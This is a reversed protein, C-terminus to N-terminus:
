VNEDRVKKWQNFMVEARLGNYTNQDILSKIDILSMGNMYAENIDKYKYTEPWIVINVGMDILKKYEKLIERNRNENDMVFTQDLGGDVAVHLASSGVAICNPLFLSDLPGEVVYVKENKDLRDMGYFPPPKKDLKISIYKPVEPGFSRAHYMFCEKTDETFFPIILRPHEQKPFEKVVRAFKDTHGVTWKHFRPAYYIDGWFEEPIKRDKVYLAAPHDDNLEVISKLESLVSPRYPKTKLQPEKTYAELTTPNHQPNSQFEDLTFMGYLNFDFSKLWKGFSMSANCNHCKLLLKNGKNYFYARAKKSDTESDGCIPCRCNALFSNGNDKKIKFRELRYSVQKLYKVENYLM